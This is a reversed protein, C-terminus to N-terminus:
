RLFYHYYFTDLNNLCVLKSLGSEFLLTDRISKLFPLDNVNVTLLLQLMLTVITKITQRKDQKFIFLQICLYLPVHQSIRLFNKKIFFTAM